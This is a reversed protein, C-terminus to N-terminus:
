REVDVAQGRRASEYVAAVVRLDDVGSAISVFPERRDRVAELFMRHQNLPNTYDGMAPPTVEITQEAGQIEPFRAAASPEYDVVRGKFGNTRSELIVVRNNIYEASGDVGHISLQEGYSNWAMDLTALAGTEFELIAAAIDEGEMGPCRLNGALGRARVVRAGSIWELIHIFHVALQIFCGGGTQAASDRWTREGALARRSWLLGWRHMLRAYFHNVEGFFGAGYMERLDHLLPQDFYSMYLGCVAKSREAAAAIEEAEGVTPALPKQLLVHKGAELAPIAQAHHLHNPTNIVVVDVAADLVAAYDTTALPKRAEQGRALSAAASEAAAAQADMCVVVEIWDLERYVSLYHATIGGSGVLAVRLKGAM